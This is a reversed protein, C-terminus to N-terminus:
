IKGQAEDTFIVIEWRFAWHWRIQFHSFGAAQILKELEQRRFARWVSLRADNKVLYSRSFLRTLVSISHYALWHRHLDNIVIALRTQQRLKKLLTLLSKDDFHHCFLTCTVIDFVQKGFEDSFVNEQAYAIQPYSATNATAYNLIFANADIGYFNALLKRKQAWKAMEVLIDGGGCGLDAIRLKRGDVLAAKETVVRDLGRLTVDNGGLWRNIFKLERLNRALEQGSLTLEDILESQTSRHDFKGM